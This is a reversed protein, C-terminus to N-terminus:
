KEVCAKASQSDDAAIALETGEHNCAECGFGHCKGCLAEYGAGGRLAHIEAELHEILDAAERQQQDDHAFGTEIRLWEVLSATSQKSM